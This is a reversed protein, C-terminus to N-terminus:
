KDMRRAVYKTNNGKKNIMIFGKDKLKNLIIKVPISFKITDSFIRQNNKINHKLQYKGYLHYGLFHIGDDHHKIYIKNKNCEMGIYSQCIHLLNQLVQYALSKSGKIGILIDDAYRVYHIKENTKNMEYYPINKFQAHKVRFSHFM